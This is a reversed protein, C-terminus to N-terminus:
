GTWALDVRGITAVRPSSLVHTCDASMDFIVHDWAEGEECITNEGTGVHISAWYFSATPLLDSITITITGAARFAIGCSSMGQEYFQCDVTSLYTYSESGAGSAMAFPLFFVLAILLSPLKPM